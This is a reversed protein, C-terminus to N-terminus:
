VLEHLPVHKRTETEFTAAPVTLRYKALWAKASEADKLRACVWALHLFADSYEHSERMKPEAARLLRCLLLESRAPDHLKESLHTTVHLLVSLIGRLVEPELSEILEAGTVCVSDVQEQRLPLRHLARLLLASSHPAWRRDGRKLEDLSVSLLEAAAETCREDRFPSQSLRDLHQFHAPVPNHRILSFAGRLASIWTDPTGAIEHRVVALTARLPEVHQCGVHSDSHVILLEEAADLQRASIALGILAHPDVRAVDASALRNLVRQKVELERDSQRFRALLANLGISYDNRFDAYHKGSLLAPIQCQRYYIPLIRVSRSEVEEILKADLEKQVWASTVSDPSLVIALYDSARLGQEIKERIPDGVLIEKEDIWVSLSQSNLDDALRRVFPKDVSSHCLFVKPM